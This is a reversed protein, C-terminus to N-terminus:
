LSKEISIFRVGIKSFLDKLDNGAEVGNKAYQTKIISDINHGSYHYLKVDLIEYKVLVSDFRSVNVKRIVEGMKYMGVRRYLLPTYYRLGSKYTGVYLGLREILAVHDKKIHIFGSLLFLIIGLALIILVILTFELTGIDKMIIVIDCYLM